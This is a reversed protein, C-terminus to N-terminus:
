KDIFSTLRYTKIKDQGLEGVPEFPWTGPLADLTAQSILLGDVEAHKQLHGALDVLPSFARGNKLDVLCDGTHIGIRFRFPRPLLNQQRNFDPLRQLIASASRVAKPTNEFFCMLEDGNSNLVIGGFEKVTNAVHDRFREFSLIIHAAPTGPQKMESSGAVDVDLMSGRRHFEAEIQHEIRLREEMAKGLDGFSATRQATPPATPALGGVEFVVIDAVQIKDGDRLVRSATVREGNVFTFNSPSKQVLTLTGDAFILEAHQRSVGRDPIEIHSGRTRGITIVDGRLEYRSHRLVAAGQMVELHGRLAQPVVAVPRLLTNCADDGDSDFSGSGFDASMGPINAPRSPGAKAARPATPEPQVSALISSLSMGEHSRLELVVSGLQIRDGLEVAGRARPKGNVLTRSRAGDLQQLILDRGLWRLRVQEPDVSPDSLAIVCGESTPSRGIVCETADFTFRRGADDGEVVLLDFITGGPRSAEM